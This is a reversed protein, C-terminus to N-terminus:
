VAMPAKIMPHYLYGILEFDHLDWDHIDKKLIDDSIILKPFPYPQRSLQTNVQALHNSYIHADSISIVVEKPKMDVLKAVIYLLVSYSIVNLNLGLFTDSSRQVMHLSLYSTDNVVEVYFQISIGHCPYLAGGDLSAVDYSTLIIRRSFPDTKLLHIINAFQDVGKGSYDADCGRYEAGCHRWVFGYMPGIDGERYHALGRDDLFKRTSNGRWINIGKAELTKSDTNGRLFWLLEEIVVRWSVFKTTVLPICESVDFRMQRGFVSLTGTGTRDSRINGNDRIDRLLSLYGLEGHSKKTTVYKLFRYNCKEGEDFHQASYEVLEFNKFQPFYRDCDYLKEVYTAHIYRCKDMFYEYLSQGGIIFTKDYKDRLTMVIDVVLHLPLFVLNIGEDYKEPTNTVVINLRNKLPRKEPSISFYTARGMVVISNKTLSYFNCLDKQIIWPIEGNNGIGFKKCFAVVISIEM